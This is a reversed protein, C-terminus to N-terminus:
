KLMHLDMMLEWMSANEKSLIFYSSIDLHLGQFCAFPFDLWDHVCSSIYTKEQNKKEKGKKKGLKYSEHGLVKKNPYYTNTLRLYNIKTKVNLQLTTIMSHRYNLVKRM